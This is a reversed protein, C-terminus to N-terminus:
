IHRFIDYFCCNCVTIQNSLDVNIGDACNNNNIVFEWRKICHNCCFQFFLLRQSPVFRIDLFHFFNEIKASILLFWPQYIDMVSFFNGDILVFTNRRIQVVTVKYNKIIMQITIIAIPILCNFYESFQRLIIM